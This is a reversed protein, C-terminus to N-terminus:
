HGLQVKDLWTSVTSARLWPLLACLGPKVYSAIVLSKLCNSFWSCMPFHIRMPCLMPPLVAITVAKDCTSDSSHMLKFHWFSLWGKQETEGYKIQGTFPLGTQHLTEDHHVDTGKRRWSTGKHSLIDLSHLLHLYRAVNWARSCAPHSLILEPIM